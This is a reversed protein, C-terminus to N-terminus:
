LSILRDQLDRAVLNLTLQRGSGAPYEVTLEDGFFQHYRGLVSILLYNLPLWVPGRWTSNMRITVTGPPFRGCATRPSSSPRTSCGHWCSRCGSLIPWPCCCGSTVPIVAFCAPTPWGRRTTWVARASCAPSSSASLWHCRCCVRM